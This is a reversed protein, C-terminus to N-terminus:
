SQGTSQEFMEQHLLELAGRAILAEAVSQGLDTAATIVPARQVVHAVQDGDPSVVM